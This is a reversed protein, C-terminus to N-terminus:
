QPNKFYFIVQNKNNEQKEDLLKDTDNQILKSQYKKENHNISKQNNVFTTIKSQIGSITFKIKLISFTNTNRYYEQAEHHFDM